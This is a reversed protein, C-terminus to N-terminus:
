SAENNNEEKLNMQIRSLICEKGSLINVIGNCKPCSLRVFGSHNEEPNDMMGGRYGSSSCEIQAEKEKIILNAGKLANDQTLVQFSFQLQEPNLFTLEGVDLFVKEVNEIEYSEISKLAAEVIDVMISFEHM